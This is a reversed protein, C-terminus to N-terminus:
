LYYRLILGIGVAITGLILFLDLVSMYALRIRIGLIVSLLLLILLAIVIGKSLRNPRVVMFVVSAILLIILIAGTNVSQMGFRYFAFSTVRVNSLLLYLGILVLVIGAYLQFSSKRM